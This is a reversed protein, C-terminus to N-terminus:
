YCQRRILRLPISMTTASIQGNKCVGIVIINNLLYHQKSTCVGCMKIIQTPSPFYIKPQLVDIFELLNINGNM